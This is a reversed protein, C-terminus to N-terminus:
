GEPKGSWNLAKHSSQSLIFPNNRNRRLFDKAQRELFKPKCQDMPLGAAFQRTYIGSEGPAYGLDKLYHFYTSKAEPDRDASFNAAYGDEISVWEEFGHQPFVENGLHWKGFYATRYDADDLLEPFCATDPQLSIKNCTCGTTHPWLGTMVTSRAPTCVPQSVYAREFVVSDKALANLHPTKIRTNGYAALTDWRQQDTWIFVLNPKGTGRGAAQARLLAPGAAFSGLAANKLFQRRPITRQVSKM